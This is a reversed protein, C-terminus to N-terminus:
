LSMIMQISNEMPVWNLILSSSKVRFIPNIWTGLLCSHIWNELPRSMWLLNLSVFKLFLFGNNTNILQNHFFDIVFFNLYCLYLIDLEIFVKNYLLKFLERAVLVCFLLVINIKSLLEKVYFRIKYCFVVKFAHEYYPLFPSM